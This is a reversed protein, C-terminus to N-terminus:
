PQYWTWLFSHLTLFTEPLQHRCVPFGTTFVETAFDALPGHHSHQSNTKETSFATLTRQPDTRPRHLSTRLSSLQTNCIDVLATSSRLHCLNGHDEATCAVPVM